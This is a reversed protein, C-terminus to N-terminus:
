GLPFSPEVEAVPNPQNRLQIEALVTQVAAISRLAQEKAAEAAGDALRAAERKDIAALETVNYNELDTQMQAVIQMVRGVEIAAM